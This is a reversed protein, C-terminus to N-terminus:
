RFSERYCEKSCYDNNDTPTGCEPCEGEKKEPPNLNENGHIM